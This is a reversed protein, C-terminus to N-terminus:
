RKVFIVILWWTVLGLFIVLAIFRNRMVRKEYRLPRLGQLSGAALYSVLKPNAAPTQRFQDKLRQWFATWGRKRVGLEPREPPPKELDGPGKFPNGSLREFVPDAPPSEPASRSWITPGHPL